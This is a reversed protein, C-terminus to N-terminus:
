ESECLNAEKGEGQPTGLANSGIIKNIINKEPLLRSEPDILHQDYKCMLEGGQM